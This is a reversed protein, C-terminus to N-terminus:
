GFRGTVFRETRPEDPHVFIKQVTGFELMEGLYMFGAFDSIRAAQQL